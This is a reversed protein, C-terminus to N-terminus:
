GTSSSASSMATRLRPARSVAHGLAFGAHGPVPTHGSLMMTVMREGGLPTLRANKHMYM